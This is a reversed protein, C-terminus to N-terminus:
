GHGGGLVEGFPAANPAVGIAPAMAPAMAAAFKPPPGTIPFNRGM